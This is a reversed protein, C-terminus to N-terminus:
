PSSETATEDDKDPAIVGKEKLMKVYDDMSINCRAFSLAKSESLRLVRNEGALHGHASKAGHRIGFDFIFKGKYYFCANKHAGDKQITAGLKNAIRLAEARLIESRSM